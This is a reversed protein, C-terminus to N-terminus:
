KKKMMGTFLHLMLGAECRPIGTCPVKRSRNTQVSDSFGIEAWLDIFGPYITKGEMDKIWADAPPEVRSGASEVIGNRIVLTGNEIVNGASVVIRANTFAYVSPTNDRLGVAPATQGVGYPNAIFIVTFFLCFLRKMLM